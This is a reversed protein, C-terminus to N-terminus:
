RTSAHPDNNPHVGSAVISILLTWQHCSSVHKAPSDPICEYSSADIFTGPRLPAGTAPSLFQSTNETPVRRFPLPKSAQPAVSSRLPKVRRRTSTTPWIHGQSEPLRSTPSQSSYPHYPFVHTPSAPTLSTYCCSPRRKPIPIGVGPTGAPQGLEALAVMSRRRELFIRGTM